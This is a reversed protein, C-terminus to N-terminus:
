RAPVLARALVGRAQPGGAPAPAAPPALRPAPPQPAVAATETLLPTLAAGVACFTAFTLGITAMWLIGSNNVPVVGGGVVNILNEAGALVAAGSFGTGLILCGISQKTEVSMSGDPLRAPGSMSPFSPGFARVPIPVADQARAAQGFLLASGLLLAAIPRPKM